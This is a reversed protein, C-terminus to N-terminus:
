HCAQIREIVKSTSIGHLAPLLEMMTGMGHLLEFEDRHVDESRYGAKVWVHPRCARLFECATDEDFIAVFTVGRIADIVAARQDQNLIPRGEGKLAKVSRDSNVGVVLNDGRKAAEQLSWVHGCHFLDFCGNTAVVTGTCQDRWSRLQSM